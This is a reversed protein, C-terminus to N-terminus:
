VSRQLSVQDVAHWAGANAVFFVAFMAASRKSYWLVSFIRRQVAAAHTEPKPRSLDGFCRAFNAAVLKRMDSAPCVLSLIARLLAIVFRQRLFPSCFVSAFVAFNLKKIGRRVWSFVTRACTNIFGGFFNPFRGKRRDSFGHALLLQEIFAFSTPVAFVGFDKTNMVFVSVAVIVRKIIQLNQTWNAVRKFVSLVYSVAEFLLRMILPM